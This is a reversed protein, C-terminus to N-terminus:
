VNGRFLHGDLEVVDGGLELDRAFQDHDFYQWPLASWDPSYVDALWKEAYESVSMEGIYAEEFSGVAEVVDGRYDVWLVVAPGHEEIACAVASVTEFSEWEGLRWSGFGEFDHIAWEEAVPERSASLMEDVEAQIAEADQAADVWVGHLRGANYDALSAVYVRCDAVITVKRTSREQRM